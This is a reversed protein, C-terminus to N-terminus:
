KNKDTALVMKIKLQTGIELLDVLEQVPLTRDISVVVVPDTLNVMKSEIKAKIQDKKVSEGELTYELKDNVALSIPKKTMGQTGQAKPLLLKVVNPNAMTSAILFFLLLFFMIDNLSSTSVESTAKNKRRLQM